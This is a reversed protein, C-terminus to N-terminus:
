GCDAAVFQPDQSPGDSWAQTGIYRLKLILCLNNKNLLICIVTIPLMNIPLVVQVKCPHWRHQQVVKGSLEPTNLPGNGM